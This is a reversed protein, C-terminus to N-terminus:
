GLIFPCPGILIFLTCEDLLLPCIQSYEQALPFAPEKYGTSIEYRFAVPTGTLEGEVQLDLGTKKLLIESRRFGLFGTEPM